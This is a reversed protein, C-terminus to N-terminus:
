KILTMKKTENYGATIIRYFYLGGALQNKDASFNVLYNGTQKEENVLTAVERGTVDYVKLNVMGPKKIFYGINTSPNFPNPYNQYLKYEPLIPSGNENKMGTASTNAIIEKLKNTLNQGFKAAGDVTLHVGDDLMSATTLSDGHVAYVSTDGTENRTKVITCVMKRYDDLTFAAGAQTATQTTVIPTICFIKATKQTVRLTDILRNYQNEKELLPKNDWMWDNFGLEIIIYDVKKDKFLQAMPWGTYAGAVALNVLNWNFNNAVIFPYTYYSSSQQGTGHSISTGIVALVPKNLPTIEDLAYSDDLSLGTFNVGHLSPLVVEYLVSQTDPKPYTITFSLTEFVKYRKGDAYVAFGNHLGAKGADAREEFSLYINKSRTKFRIRVGTQTYAYPKSYISIGSEPNVLVPETHRNLIVKEASKQAFWLGDYVIKPDDLPIKIKGFIQLTFLAILAATKLSNKV